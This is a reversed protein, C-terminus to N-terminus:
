SWWPLYSRECRLAEESVLQGLGDIGVYIQTDVLYQSRAISSTNDCGYACVVM